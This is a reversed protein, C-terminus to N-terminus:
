AWRLVSVDPECNHGECICTATVIFNNQAWALLDIEENSALTDLFTHLEGKSLNLETILEAITRLVQDPSIPNM